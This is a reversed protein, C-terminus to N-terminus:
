EDKDDEPAGAPLKGDKLIEGYTKGDESGKAETAELAKTIEDADKVNKKGLAKGIEEAYESRVKKSKGHCVGCKKTKAEEIDYKALFADLYPKRAEAQKPASTLMMGAVAALCMVTLVKRM